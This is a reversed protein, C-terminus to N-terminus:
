VLAGPAAGGSSDRSVQRPLLSRVWAVLGGESGAVQGEGGDAPAAADAAADASAQAAAQAAPKAAALLKLETERKLERWVIRERSASPECGRRLWRPVVCWACVVCAVVLGLTGAYPQWGPDYQFSGFLYATRGTADTLTVDARSFSTAGHLRPLLATAMTGGAHLELELAATEVGEVTGFLLKLPPRMEDLHHGHLTLTLGGTAPGYAPEISTLVPWLRSDTDCLESPPPCHIKGGADDDLPNLYLEGGKPPCARWREGVRVELHSANLCRMRFCSPQSGGGYSYTNTTSEFCRCHECREQGGQPLWNFSVRGEDTCAGNSYPRYVPCYDLLESSGGLFPHSSGFYQQSPPLPKGHSQVDCYAM